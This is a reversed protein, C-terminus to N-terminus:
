ENLYKNNIIYIYFLLALVRVQKALSSSIEQLPGHKSKSVVSSPGSMRRCIKCCIVNGVRRKKLTSDIRVSRNFFEESNM